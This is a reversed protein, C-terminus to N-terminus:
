ESELFDNIPDHQIKVPTTPFAFVNVPDNAFRDAAANTAREKENELQVDIDALYELVSAGNQPAPARNMREWDESEQQQINAEVMAAYKPDHERRWGVSNMKQIAARIYQGAAGDKFFLWAPFKTAADYPGTKVFERWALSVAMEGHQKIAALFQKRDDNRLRLTQQNHDFFLCVVWEPLTGNASAAGTQQDTQQKPRDSFSPQACDEGTVCDEVRTSQAVPPAYIACSHESSQAASPISSQADTSSQAVSRGALATLNLARWRTGKFGALKGNELLGLKELDDLLYTVARRSKGLRNALTQVSPRIRTGDGDAYSALLWALRQRQECLHRQQRGDDPLRYATPPIDRLDRVCKVSSENKM